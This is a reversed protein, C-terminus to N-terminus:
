SQGDVESIDEFPEEYKLQEILSLLPTKIQPKMKDGFMELMMELYGITYAVKQYDHMAHLKQPM